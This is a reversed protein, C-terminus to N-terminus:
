VWDYKKECGFLHLWWLVVFGELVGWVGREEEVVVVVFVWVV